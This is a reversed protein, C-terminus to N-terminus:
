WLEKNSNNKSGCLFAQTECSFWRISRPALRWGPLTIVKNWAMTEKVKIILFTPTLGLKWGLTWNWFYSEQSFSEYLKLPFFIGTFFFVNYYCHSFIFVRKQRTRSATWRKRTLFFFNLLFAFIVFSSVCAHVITLFSFLCSFNWSSFKKHFFINKEKM